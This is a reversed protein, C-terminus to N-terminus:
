HNVFALADATNEELPRISDVVLHDDRWPEWEERRRVVEDWSPEPFGDIDRTRRSLRDRHTEEDSCIVEVVCLATDARSAANRWMRRAVELSSVADAIVTLGLRLQHEALVAAVEYAAVGTEFSRPIGCRLIAAEIPDVSLVAAGLRRGLADALESKGVAPLGSVVVLM